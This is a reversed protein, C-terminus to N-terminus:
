AVFAARNPLAKQDLLLEDSEASVEYRYVAGHEGYGLYEFNPAQILYGTFMFSGDRKAVTVRAGAVPIVFGVAGGLLSCQLQAPQNIKRVIGPAVTGDLAETYDQPGLGQLNDITIRM